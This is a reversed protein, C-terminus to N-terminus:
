SMNIKLNTQYHSIVHPAMHKLFLKVVFVCIFNFRYFYEKCEDNARKILGDVHGFEANFFANTKDTINNNM